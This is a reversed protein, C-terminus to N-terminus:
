ASHRTPVGSTRRGAGGSAARPALEGFVSVPMRTSRAGAISARVHAPRSRLWLAGESAAISASIPQPRREGAREDPQPAPQGARQEAAAPRADLRRLQEAHEDAQRRAQGVRRPTAAGARGRSGPRPRSRHRARRQEADRCRTRSAPAARSPARRQPASRRRATPPRPSSRRQAPARVRQAVARSPAGARSASPRWRPRSSCASCRWASTANPGGCDPLDAPSATGASSSHGPGATADEILVSRSAAVSARRRSREPWTNTNSGNASAARRRVGPRRQAAGAGPVARELHRPPEGRGALEVLAADLAAVEPRDRGLLPQRRQQVGGRLGTARSRCRRASPRRGPRARAGRLRQGLEGSVGRRRALQRVRM